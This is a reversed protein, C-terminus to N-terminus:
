IMKATKLKYHSIVEVKSVAFLVFIINLPVRQLRKTQIHMKEERFPKKTATALWVFLLADFWSAIIQNQMLCGDRVYDLLQSNKVCSTFLSPGVFFPFLQLIRMRQNSKFVEVWFHVFSFDDIISGMLLFSRVPDLIVVLHEYLLVRDM